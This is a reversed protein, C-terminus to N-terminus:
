FFTVINFNSKQVKKISRSTKEGFKSCFANKNKTCNKSTITHKLKLFNEAKKLIYKMKEKSTM